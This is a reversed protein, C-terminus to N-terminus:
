GRQADNSQRGVIARRYDVIMITGPGDNWGAMIHPRNLQGIPDAIAVKRNRIISPDCDSDYYMQAAM